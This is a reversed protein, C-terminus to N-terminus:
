IEVVTHKKCAYNIYNEGMKNMSYLLLGISFFFNLIFYQAYTAKHVTEGM